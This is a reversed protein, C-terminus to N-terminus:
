RAECILKFHEAEYRDATMILDALQDAKLSSIKETDGTYLFEIFIRFLFPSTVDHIDITRKIDEKMGSSLARRFWPCRSALIVRHAKIFVVEPLAVALSSNGVAAEEQYDQLVDVAEHLDHSQIKAKPELPRDEEAPKDELTPLCLNEEPLLVEELNHSHIHLKLTMDTDIAKNLLRASATALHSDRACPPTHVNESMCYPSSKLNWYIEMEKNGVNDNSLLGLKMVAVNFADRQVCDCLQKVVSQILEQNESLRSIIWAVKSTGMKFLYKWERGSLKTDVASKLEDIRRLLIPM